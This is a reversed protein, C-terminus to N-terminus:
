MACTPLYYLPNKIIKKGAYKKVPTVVGVNKGQMSPVGDNCVAVLNYLTLGLKETVCNIVEDAIEKREKKYSGEYLV